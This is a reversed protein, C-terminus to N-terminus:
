EISVVKDVPRIGEGTLRAIYQGPRVDAPISIRVEGPADVSLSKFGDIGNIDLCAHVPRDLAPSSVALTLQQGATTAEPGTMIVPIPGKTKELIVLFWNVDTSFRLSSGDHSYELAALTQHELDYIWAGVPRYDLPLGVESTVRDDLLFIRGSRLDNEDSERLAPRTGFVLDETAGRIRRCNMDARSSVPNPLSVDGRHYTRSVAQRINQWNRALRDFPTGPQRGSGDPSLRLTQALAGGNWQCVKYDPFAVQLPATDVLQERIKAPDFAQHLSHNFHICNYDVPSETSLLADPKIAKVAAAVKAFMQQMWLNHDFPSAHHHAQNFCPWFYFSYSDLRIGDIDTERVLRSAMDAVHDQWEVCGPCMHVWRSETYPGTNGGDTNHLVWDHRREAQVPLAAIDSVQYALDRLIRRDDPSIHTPNIM